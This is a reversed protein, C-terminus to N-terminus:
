SDAYPEAAASSERVWADLLTYAVALVVPGVFLGIPGFSLMGGIVGGFVLIFPLDAGRQILVPRLFNDFTSCFVAWILLGIAWGIEGGNYLWGVASLMVLFMVIGLQAVCLVFFVATLPAAFPVGAVVLGLGALASQLLATLVVGLAVGRIAQGALRVAAEGRRDALRQGFAMLWRAWSEGGAYLVASLVVILLIQVILMGVSGAQKVVWRAIDTAYPQARAMLEPFQSGAFRNWFAELRGGVLPLDGVWAPPPQLTRGQLGRLWASATDANDAIASVALVMPVVFVLLIAVSMGLVALGRRHGTWEELKLMLPWTSVVIMVAWIFAPLFPSLIWISALAFIGIFLVAFTIRAIDARQPDVM